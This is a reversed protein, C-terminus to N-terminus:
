SGSTQGADLKCARLKSKGDDLDKSQYKDVGQSGKLTTPNPSTSAHQSSIPNTRYEHTTNHGM